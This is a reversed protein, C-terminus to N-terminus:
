PKREATAMPPKDGVESDYVERFFRMDDFVDWFLQQNRLLAAPHYTVFTKCDRYHYIKKRLGALSGDLGLLSKTAIRGLCFLYQPKILDVQQELYPRCSEVEEDSPDRNEPPRCKIVNAIYVEDRAFGMRGLMRDLLKGAAGVFPLGQTDEDRGPAEGVFMLKAAPNGTGFVVTKRGKALACKQCGNAEGQLERLSDPPAAIGAPRSAAVAEPEAVLVSERTDLGTTEAASEVSPRLGLFFAESGYLATQQAFFFAIKEATESLTVTM